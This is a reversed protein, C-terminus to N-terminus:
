FLIGADRLHAEFEAESDFSRGCVKCDYDREAETQEGAPM